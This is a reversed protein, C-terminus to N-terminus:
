RIPVKFLEDVFLEAPQPLRKGRGLPKNDQINEALTFVGYFSQSYMGFKGNGINGTM